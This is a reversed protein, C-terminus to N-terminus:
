QDEIIRKQEVITAEMADQESDGLAWVLKGNESELEDVRIKLDTVANRMDRSSDSGASADILEMEHQYKMDEITEEYRNRM